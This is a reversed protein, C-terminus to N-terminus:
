QWYAQSVPQDTSIGRAASATRMKAAPPKTMELSNKSLFPGCSRPDPPIRGIHLSPPAIGAGRLVDLKRPSDGSTGLDSRKGQAKEIKKSLEGVKDAARWRIQYARTEADTNKAVRAAAELMARDHIQKVEDVAYAADIARCMADYRVLTTM